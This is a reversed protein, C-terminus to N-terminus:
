FKIFLGNGFFKTGCHGAWQFLKVVMWQHNAKHLFKKPVRIDFAILSIAEAHFVIEHTSQEYLKICEIPNDGVYDTSIILSKISFNPNLM